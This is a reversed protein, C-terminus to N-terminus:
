LIEQKLMARIVLAGMCQLTAATGLLVRGITTGLVPIMNHPSVVYLLLMFLVPVLILVYGQTRSQATRALVKKRLNERERCLTALLSLSEIMNSGSRYSSAMSLLALSLSGGTLERAQLELSADLTMGSRVRHLIAEFFAALPTQSKQIATEISQQLSNGVALSSSISDLFAPLQKELKRIVKSGPKRDKEAKRLTLAIYGLPLAVSTGSVLTLFLDMAIM